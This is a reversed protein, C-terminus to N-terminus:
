LRFRDRVRSWISLPPTGAQSVAPQGVGRVDAKNFYRKKAVRDKLRGAAIERETWRPAWRVGNNEIWYHARCPFNWNGISPYLSITEGDFTLQWDTPSLPTVVECGCGCCCTHAVTAYAISIYLTEDALRDPLFEVFEHKLVAKRNM